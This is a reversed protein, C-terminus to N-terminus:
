SGSSTVDRGTPHEIRVRALRPAVPPSPQLAHVFSIKPYGHRRDRLIRAAYLKSPARERRRKCPPAIMLLHPAGAGSPLLQPHTRRAPSSSAHAGRRPVEVVESERRAASRAPGVEVHYSPPVDRTRALTVSGFPPVRHVHQQPDQLDDGREKVARRSDHLDEHEVLYALIDPGEVRQRPPDPPGEPDELEDARDPQDDGGGQVPLRRERPHGRRDERDLAEDEDPHVGLVALDRGDDHAARQAEEHREDRVAPHDQAVTHGRAGQRVKQRSRHKYRM